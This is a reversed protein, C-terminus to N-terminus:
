RMTLHQPLLYIIRWIYNSNLLQKIYNKQNQRVMDNIVNMVIAIYCFTEM